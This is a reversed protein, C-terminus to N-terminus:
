SESTKTESEYPKTWLETQKEGAKRLATALQEITVQAVTNDALVWTTYDTMKAGTATAATITRSLREQSTEDGDFEMGDVWVRINAVADAREAKAQELEHAAKEEETMNALREDEEQERKIREVEERAIREAEERIKKREEYSKCLTSVSALVQEAFENPFSQFAKGNIWCTGLTKNYDISEIGDPLSIGGDLIFNDLSDTYSYGECQVVVNGNRIVFLKQMM